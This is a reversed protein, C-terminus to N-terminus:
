FSGEGTWFVRFDGPFRPGGRRNNGQIVLLAPSGSILALKSRSLLAVWISRAMHPSVLAYTLRGPV